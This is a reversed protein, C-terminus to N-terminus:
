AFHRFLVSEANEEDKLAHFLSWGEPHGDRLERGLIGIGADQGALLAAEGVVVEVNAVLHEARHDHPHRGEKGELGRIVEVPVVEDLLLETTCIDPKSLLANKATSSTAANCAAASLNLGSIM